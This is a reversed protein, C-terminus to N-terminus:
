SSKPLEGPAADIAAQIRRRPLSGIIRHHARMQEATVLIACHIPYPETLTKLTAKLRWAPM